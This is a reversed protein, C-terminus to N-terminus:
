QQQGLYAAAANPGYKLNFAATVARPDAKLATVDRSDPTRKGATAAPTNAAGAGLIPAPQPPAYHAGTPDDPTKTLYDIKGVHMAIQNNALTDIANTMALGADVPIQSGPKGLGTLIATYQGGRPAMQHMIKSQMEIALFDRMKMTSYADYQDQTLKPAIMGLINRGFDSSAVPGSMSPASTLLSRMQQAYLHMTRAENINSVSDQITGVQAAYMNKQGLSPQVQIPNGDPGNIPTFSAATTANGPHFYNAFGTMGNVLVQGEGYQQKQTAVWAQTQAARASMLEAQTKLPAQGATVRALNADAFAKDIQAHQEPSIAASSSARAFDGWAADPANMPPLPITSPDQHRILAAHTLQDQLVTKAADSIPKGAAVDQAIQYAQNGAMGAASKYAEQEAQTAQATEKARTAQATLQTNYDTQLKTYAYPYKTAMKALLQNPDAGAAIGAAFEPAAQAQQQLAQINVNGIQVKNLMDALSMGTGALQLPNPTEVPKGALLFSTDM